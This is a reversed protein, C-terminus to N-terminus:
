RGPLFGMLVEPPLIAILVLWPLWQFFPGGKALIRWIIELQMDLRFIYNQVHRNAFILSIIHLLLRREGNPNLNRNPRDSPDSYFSTDSSSPPSPSSSSSSSPNHSPQSPPNSQASTSSTTTASATTSGQGQGRLQAPADADGGGVLRRRLGREFALRHQLEGSRTELARLDSETWPGQRQPVNFTLQADLTDRPEATLLLYDSESTDSDYDSESDHSYPYAPPQTINTYSSNTSTSTTGTSPHTDTNSSM